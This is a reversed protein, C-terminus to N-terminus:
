PARDGRAPDNGSGLLYLRRFAEHANGRASGFAERAALSCGPALLEAHAAFLEPDPAHRSLTPLRRSARHLTALVGDTRLTRRHLEYASFLGLNESGDLCAVTRPNSERLAARWDAPTSTGNDHWQIWVVQWGEAALRAALARLRTTKGTGHPGVLAGRRGAAHWRALIGELSDDGWHVPLSLLRSTRFPNQDARIM